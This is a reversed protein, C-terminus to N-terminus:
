TGAPNNFRAMADFVANAQDQGATSIRPPRTVQPDDTAAFGESPATNGSPATFPHQDSVKAAHPTPAGYDNGAEPIDPTEDDGTYYPAKNIAM